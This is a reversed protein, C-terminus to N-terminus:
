CLGPTGTSLLGPSLSFPASLARAVPGVYVVRVGCTNKLSQQTNYCKSKSQFYDTVDVISWTVRLM